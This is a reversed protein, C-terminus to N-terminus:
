RPGDGAELLYGAGRVTRLTARGFPHDIKARLYGVYVDVVNSDSDFAMDWVHEILYSRTLAQGPSRMFCELLAFEKASLAIPQGARCVQRGAPDLELDGVRLMPPREHPGRRILSRLRALLEEFAFPKTLYDDAGADLGAVRQAVADRATLALVPMWRGRSRLQDVVVLGDLDPLGLDLVVADYEVESASWLGDRGTTATDVAFGAERLGRTLVAVMGPDDEVVLLRM